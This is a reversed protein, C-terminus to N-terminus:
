MTPESFQYIFHKAIFVFTDFHYRILLNISMALVSIFLTITGRGRGTDLFDVSILITQRKAACIYQVTECTKM